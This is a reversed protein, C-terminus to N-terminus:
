KMRRKLAEKYLEVYESAFRRWSFDKAMGRKMLKQWRRSFPYLTLARKISELFVALNYDDFLFGTGTDTLANYDEITDSLGGTNRAVPVTGYRLAIMQVLGCPEYRSPMMVMDSGAYVSHAFGEDFDLRIYLNERGERSISLLSEEAEKTGTGLLIVGCGYDLLKDLGAIILEVGKQMSLRGVFALLPAGKKLKINCQKMLKERCLLKGKLDEASYRRQILKDVEPSWERYDIGNLIGFLDNSRKKLIGDLGFGYEPTTIEEAYRKSVTSLMDAYLIGAKLFNVKGYFEIGEPNFVERGLGIASLDEPPFLGQYGLNHITLLTLTDRFFDDGRYETRLYLPVLSTQWDNLHIIDPRFDLAKCVQLIARCFYSFRLANDAFDGTRDGYLGERGYLEDCGIFIAKNHTYVRGSYLRNGLFINLDIGTDTLEFYRSINSYLPLILRADINMVNLEKFLVGAVDALGGTKCYPIAESSAILVRM